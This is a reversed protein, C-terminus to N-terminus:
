PGWFERFAQHEAYRYVLYILAACVVVGAAFWLVGSM